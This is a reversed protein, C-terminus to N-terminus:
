CLCSMIKCSLSYVSLKRLQLVALHIKDTASLLTGCTVQLIPQKLDIELLLNDPQFAALCGDDNINSNVAFIRLYGSLSGLIIKDTVFVNLQLIFCIIWRWPLCEGIGDGSNDINATCISNKDFEEDSATWSWWDRAQFLSMESVIRSITWPYSSTM